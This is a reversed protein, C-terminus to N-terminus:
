RRVQGGRVGVATGILPSAAVLEGAAALLEAPVSLGLRRAADDRATLADLLAERARAVQRDTRARVLGILAAGEADIGAAYDRAAQAARRDGATDLAAATARAAAATRDQVARWGAEARARDARVPRAVTRATM